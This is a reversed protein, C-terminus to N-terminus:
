LTLFQNGHVFIVPEEKKMIIECLLIYKIIIAIKNCHFQFYLSGTSTVLFVWTKYKLFKLVLYNM